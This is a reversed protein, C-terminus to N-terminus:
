ARGSYRESRLRGGAQGGSDRRDGGYSTAFRMGSGYFYLGSLQFGRGVEWIGNVVARHRQDGRGLHVREGLDPTSRFRCWRRSDAAATAAEAERYFGLTYTGAAQWRSSFRKTFATELAHFNTRGDMREMGLRAFEPYPRNAVVSFPLNAGTVPNYGLNFNHADDEHRGGIYVYDAEVAMTDWLQRQM